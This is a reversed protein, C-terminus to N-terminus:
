FSSKLTQINIIDREENKHIKRRGHMFRQNNIMCLDGNNWSIDIIYENSIKKVEEMIKKFKANKKELYIKKVQPDRNLIIQLHNVFSLESNYKDKVVAYRKLKFNVENTRLNLYCDHVGPYDIHWPRKKIKTIINKQKLQFPIKLDYIVQNELFFKKIESRFNKYIRQGDCITTYGSNLPAKNCYFWIIEPWSPSYSAESHLPMEKIGPDVNHINKNGLRTTRRLADNAYKSTFLDTFKIINEKNLNFNRFIIVGKEKFIKIFEQKDIEFINKQKLPELIYGASTKNNSIESIKM